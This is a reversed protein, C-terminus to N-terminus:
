VLNREIQKETRWVGEILRYRGYIERGCVLQTKCILTPVRPYQLHNATECYAVWFRNAMGYPTVEGSERLVKWKEELREHLTM